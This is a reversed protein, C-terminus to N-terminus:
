GIPHRPETPIRAGLLRETETWLWGGLEPDRSTTVPQQVEAHATRHPGLYEGGRLEPSAVAAVVPRAAQDKGQVVGRFVARAARAGPRGLTLADIAGGPHVVVSQVSIEALRRQLEFGFIEVAHKSMAYAVRARYHRESLWNERDFPIKRTLMSGLSVVRKVTPLTRRLLEAHALHNIGVIEEVGFAGIRHAPGPGFAGAVVGANLVLADLRPLEGLHDGVRAISTRDSLDLQLFEHQEPNPLASVAARGRSESRGLVLVRAGLEALQSAAYFGIGSTAGTIAVTQGDIREPQVEKSM